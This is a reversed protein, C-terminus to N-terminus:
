SHLYDLQVVRPKAALDDRNLVLTRVDKDVPSGVAQIFADATEFLIRGIIGTAKTRYHMPIAVSPQLQGVVLAAEAGNLTMKGGVPAALVDVRGISAAQEASLPHGLDGCHCFVLGDMEIVFVLNPGRKAGQQKDHYTRVGRVSVDRLTIPEPERVLRYNGSAASIQNHDRHDHTVLVLDAEVVPMRYGLFRRYPDILVRTGQESTLLFCSQGYWIINM